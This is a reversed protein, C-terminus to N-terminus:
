EREKKSGVSAAAGDKRRSGKWRDQQVIKAGAVRMRLRNNRVRQWRVHEAMLQTQGRHLSVVIAVLHAFLARIQVNDDLAVQLICHPHQLACAMMESTQWALRMLRMLLSVEIRGGSCKCPIRDAWGSSAASM